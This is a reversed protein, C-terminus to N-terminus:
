PFIDPFIKSAKRDSWSGDTNIYNLVLDGSKHLHLYPCELVPRSLCQGTPVISVTPIAEQLVEMPADPAVDISAVLQFHGHDTMRFGKASPHSLLPITTRTSVGDEGCVEKILVGAKTLGFRHQNNCLAEGQQVWQFHGIRDSLCGFNETCDLPATNPTSAIFDDGESNTEEGTGDSESKADGVKLSQQQQQSQFLSSGWVVVLIGALAVLIAPLLLKKKWCRRSSSRHHYQFDNIEEEEMVDMEDDLPNEEERDSIELHVSEDSASDRVM